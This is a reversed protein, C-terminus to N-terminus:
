RRELVHCLFAFLSLEKEYLHHHKGDAAEDIARLVSPGPDPLKRFCAYALLRRVLDDHKAAALARRVDRDSRMSREKGIGHKWPGAVIGAKWKDINM